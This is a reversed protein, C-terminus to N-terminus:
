VHGRSSNSRTSITRSSYESRGTVERLILSKIFPPFNIEDESQSSSAQVYMLSVRPCPSQFQEIYISSGGLLFCTRVTRVVHRSPDAQSSALGYERHSLVRKLEIRDGDRIIVRTEGYAAFGSNDGIQTRRRVYTYGKSEDDASAGVVQPYCKEISFKRIAIDAEKFADDPPTSELLYKRAKRRTTPLGLMHSVHDILSRLKAEFGEGGNEKSDNSFVIRHPHGLWADRIKKDLVRAEDVGETRSPNNESSYFAEAGSAATTLHLVANYRADRISVEDFGQTSLVQQWGEPTVYAKGDMTGRDCLVIARMTDDGDCAKEAREVMCDEFRMQMQMLLRQFDTWDDASRNDQPAVGNGFLFTAAEPVFFVRFGREDLFTRLRALATTKGGCPGGTLVFKQVRQSSITTMIGNSLRRRPSLPPPPPSRTAPLTSSPSPPSTITPTFTNLLHNFTLAVTAAVAASVAITKVSIHDM